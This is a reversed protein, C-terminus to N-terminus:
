PQPPQPNLINSVAKDVIAELDKPRSLMSKADAYNEARKTRKALAILKFYERQAERMADVQRALVGLKFRETSVAVKVALPSLPLDLHADSGETFSHASNENM